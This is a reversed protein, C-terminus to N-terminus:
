ESKSELVSIVSIREHYSVYSTHAVAIFATLSVNFLLASHEFRQNNTPKTPRDTLHTRHLRKPPRGFAHDVLYLCVSLCVEFAFHGAVGGIFFGIVAIGHLKVKWWEGKRGKLIHGIAIGQIM